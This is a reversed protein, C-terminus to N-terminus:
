LAKQIHAGSACANLLDASGASKGGRVTKADKVTLDKIAPAKKRKAGKPVKGM